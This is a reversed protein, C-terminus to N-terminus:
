SEDKDRYLEKVAGDKANKEFWETKVLDGLKSVGAEILDKDAAESKQWRKESIESCRFSCLLQYVVTKLFEPGLFQYVVTKLFELDSAPTVRIKM